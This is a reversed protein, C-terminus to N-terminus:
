GWFGLMLSELYMSSSQGLLKELCGILRLSVVLTLMPEIMGSIAGVM